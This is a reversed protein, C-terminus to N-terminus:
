KPKMEFCDLRDVAEAKIGGLILSTNYGDGFKPKKRWSSKFELDPWFGGWSNAPGVLRAPLENDTGLLENSECELADRVTQIHRRLM